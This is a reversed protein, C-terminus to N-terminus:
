YIEINKLAENLLSEIDLASEFKEATEIKPKIVPNKPLFITCCDEYPLISTDYTGIKKAIEMIEQKDLGVLPRLVPMKTVSESCAMSFVTQSAVQGLSEGTVLAQCAYEKALREAARMMFRRLITIMFEAPCKEYIALQVDTFPVVILKIDTCYEAVIDRLKIVKEKAMESTYPPSSFHVACLKMGRKAMMYAAVPSDIGGSLLLMGKDSCGVPLGGAASIVKSYVYTYGNERVDTFIEVDPNFLDVKATSNKLIYGGIEAAIQMSTLPIRKEARKATIRFTNNKENELLSKLAAEKVPLFSNEFDTSVKDAVSLSIIGFTKKLANIIEAEDNIDYSEIFYRGQSRAFKYNFKELSFKINKILLSEFYDRNKGKLFIEGFRVIIVREM